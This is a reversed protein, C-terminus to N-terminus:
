ANRLKFEYIITKAFLFRNIGSAILLPAIQLLFRGATTRASAARVGTYKHLELGNRQGIEFLTGADYWGVHDASDSFPTGCLLNKVIVNAYWPNPTTVVLCGSTELMAAANGLLAGPKDVHEIVEGMVIVDF